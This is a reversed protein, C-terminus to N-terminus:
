SAPQSSAAASIDALAADVTPQLDERRRGPKGDPRGEQSFRRDPGVYNDSFLFPRGGKAVWIIRELMTVPAIPKAIFFNGGCDRATAVQSSLTHGATLLVPVYKNFEPAQHRLWRVCDYGEGAAAGTDIIALDLQFQSAVKHAEEPTSCRHIQRAGLGTIIQVLISMGMPSSDFLLTVTQSLNFRARSEAALAM